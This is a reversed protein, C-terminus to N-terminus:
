GIWNYLCSRVLSEDPDKVLPKAKNVLPTTFSHSKNTLPKENSNFHETKLMSKM